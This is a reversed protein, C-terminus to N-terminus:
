ISSNYCNENKVRQLLSHVCNNLLYVSSEKHFTNRCFNNINKGFYEVKRLNIFFTLKENGMKYVIKIYKASCSHYKISNEVKHKSQIRLAPVSLISNGDSYKEKGEDHCLYVLHSNKIGLM